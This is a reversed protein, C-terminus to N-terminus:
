AGAGTGMGMLMWSMRSESLAWPVQPVLAWCCVAVCCLLLFFSSSILFLFTFRSIYVSFLVTLPKISKVFLNM